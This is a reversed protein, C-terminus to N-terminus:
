WKSINKLFKTFDKCFTIFANIDNKNKDKLIEKVELVAINTYQDHELEDIDGFILYDVSTHLNRAINILTETSMKTKGREINSIFSPNVEILEALADQTINKSTRCNKIREGIAKYDIEYKM